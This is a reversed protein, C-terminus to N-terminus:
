AAATSRPIRATGAMAAGVGPSQGGPRAPSGQPQRNGQHARQAPQVAPLHGVRDGPERDAGGAESDHEGGHEASAFVRDITSSEDDTAEGLLPRAERGPRCSISAYREYELFPWIACKATGPARRRRPHSAQIDRTATRLMSM